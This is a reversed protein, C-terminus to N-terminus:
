DSSKRSPTLASGQFDPKGEGCLLRGIAVIRRFRGSATRWSCKLRTATEQLSLNEECVAELLPRLEPPLHCRLVRYLDADEVTVDPCSCRDPLWDLADDPSVYRLRSRLGRSSRRLYDCAKAEAIRVVLGRLRATDVERTQLWLLLTLMVDQVLDDIDRGYSAEFHRLRRRIVATALDCLCFADKDSLPAPISRDKQGHSCEDGAASRLEPIPDTM